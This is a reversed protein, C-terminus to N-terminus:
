SDLATRITQALEIMKYPKNIYGNAGALIGDHTYEEGYGSSIIINADPSIKTMEQFLQKGSMHPM